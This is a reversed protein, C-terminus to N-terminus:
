ITPRLTTFDRKANQDKINSTVNKGKTDMKYSPAKVNGQHPYQYSTSKFAQGLNTMHILIEDLKQLIESNMNATQPESAM